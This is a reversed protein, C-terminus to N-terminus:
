PLARFRENEGKQYNGRTRQRTFSFEHMRTRTVGRISLDFPCVNDFHMLDERADDITERVWKDTSNALMLFKSHGRAVHTMNGQSYFGNDAVIVPAPLGLLKLQHLANELSIKDPINGPQKSFAIPERNRVSYLVLLKITDLGDADKNFGQRAEIQNKSYTSFTTTDLALLLGDSGEREARCKFYSQLGNEMRGVDSFLKGYVDETIPYPYPLPNMRQWTELRPLTDGQSSVWYRAISALKM